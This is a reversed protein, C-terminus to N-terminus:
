KVIEERIVQSLKVLTDLLRFERPEHINATRRMARLEDEIAELANRLEQKKM